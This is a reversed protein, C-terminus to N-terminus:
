YVVLKGKTYSEWARSYENQLNKISLYKTAAIPDYFTYNDWNTTSLKIGLKEKNIYVPTGPLPTLLAYKCNSYTKPALKRLKLSFMITRSITETTDEPSGIIFSCVVPVGHSLFIKVANEITDTTINKGITRLINNDGSEAGIQVYRCGSKVMESVVRDNVTNARAEAEWTIKLERRRIERCIDICHEEDATFTDDAFFFNSINYEKYLYEIENVVNETSRTRYLAGSVASAACFICKYPCGRGTLIIGPQGYKEQKILDWAPFDISDVNEIVPRPDTTVVKGDKLYAIGLIDDIPKGNIFADALEPFTVEGEFMAVVDFWGSNLVEEPIFSAQPGGMVIKIDPFSDKIQKAIRIGNGHNAIFSSIGVIKAQSNKIKELLDKVKLREPGMDIIDVTFGKKRVASALYGLGLPPNKYMVSEAFIDKLVVPQPNILIIQKM